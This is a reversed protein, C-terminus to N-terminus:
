VPQLRDFYPDEMLDVQPIDWLFRHDYEGIDLGEGQIGIAVHGIYISYCGM